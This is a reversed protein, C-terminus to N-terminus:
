PLSLSILPLPFMYFKGVKQFTLRLIGEKLLVLSFSALNEVETGISYNEESLM